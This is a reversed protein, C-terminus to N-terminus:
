EEASYFNEVIKDAARYEDHRDLRRDYNKHIRNVDALIPELAKKEAAKRRSDYLDSLLALVVSTILPPEAPAPVNLSECRRDILTAERGSLESKWFKQRCASVASKIRGTLAVVRKNPAKEFTEALRYTLGIVALAHRETKSAM